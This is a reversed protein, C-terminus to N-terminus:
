QLILMIPFLVAAMAAVFAAVWQRGGEYKEVWNKADALDKRASRFMLVSVGGFVVFAVAALGVDGAKSM